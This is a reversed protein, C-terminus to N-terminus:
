EPNGFELIPLLRAFRTAAQRHPTVFVPSATVFGAAIRRWIELGHKVPRM